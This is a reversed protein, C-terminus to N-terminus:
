VELCRNTKPVCVQRTQGMGRRTQYFRRFTRVAIVGTGALAVVGMATNPYSLALVVTIIGLIALASAMVTYALSHRSASSLHRAPDQNPTYKMVTLFLPAMGMVTIQIM